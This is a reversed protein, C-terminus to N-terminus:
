ASKSGSGSGSMPVVSKARFAVRSNGNQVWPMAQLREVTVYQGQSVKPPDAIAVTVLITEADADFWAVLKVAYLPLNTGGSKDRRQVGDKDLRPEFEGSVQFKVDSTDLILDM